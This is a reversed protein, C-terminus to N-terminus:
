GPPSDVLGFFRRFNSSTAAALEAPALDRVPGLTRAVEAVNAPENRRGRHPQPSLYPSDTEILLSDLPLAKAVDRLHQAKPYTINGAFSVLFGMSLGRRAEELTGGFCHFIGGMGSGRWHHELADLCDPWADRCHLIVPRRAARALELQDIFVRRQVDRPSHSYHYDLGIEGWGLFRPNSALRSLIQYHANTALKAEHPHVGAAGYIWPYREAFALAAGLAFPNGGIALIARVGAAQARSLMEDRDADFETADLHAHSDVLDLPPAPQPATNM